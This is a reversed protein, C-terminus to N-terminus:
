FLKKVGKKKLVGYKEDLERVLQERNIAPINEYFSEYNINFYDAIATFIEVGTYENPTFQESIAIFVKSQLQKPIKKKASLITYYSTKQFFEDVLLDITMKRNYDFANYCDQLNKEAYSSDVKPLSYEEFDLNGTNYDNNFIKDIKIPSEEDYSEDDNFHDEEDDFIKKM